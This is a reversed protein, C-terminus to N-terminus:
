ARSLRFNKKFSSIIFEVFLVIFSLGLGFLLVQFCGFLKVINLVAPREQKSIVLYNKDINQFIWYDTLGAVKLDEIKDNMSTLLYSDKPVYIVVPITMAHEKCVTYRLNWPRIQNLYTIITLSRIFAGKFSPDRQIQELYRIREDSRVPVISSFTNILM